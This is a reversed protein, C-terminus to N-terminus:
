TIGLISALELGARPVLYGKKNGKWTLGYVDLLNWYVRAFLPNAPFRYGWKEDNM